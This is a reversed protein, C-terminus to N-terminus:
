SLFHVSKQHKEVIRWCSTQTEYKNAGKYKVKLSTSLNGCYHTVILVLDSFNDVTPQLHNRSWTDKAITNIVRWSCLFSLASEHLLLRRAANSFTCHAQSVPVPSFSCPALPSPIPERFHSQVLLCMTRYKKNISGPFYPGANM